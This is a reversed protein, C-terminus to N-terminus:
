KPSLCKQRTPTTPQVASACRKPKSVAFAPAVVRYTYTVGVRPAGGRARQELGMEEGDGGEKRMNVRVGPQKVEEPSVRAQAKCPGYAHVRISTSAPM